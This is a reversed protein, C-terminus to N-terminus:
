SKVARLRMKAPGAKADLLKFASLETQGDLFCDSGEFRAIAKADDRKKLDDCYLPRLMLADAKIDALVYTSPKGKEAAQMVWAGKGLAVFLVGIEDNKENRAMYHNGTVTFSIANSEEGKWVGDTFNELVFHKGLSQPLAVGQAEKFVPTESQLVCSGLGLCLTFVLIWRLVM